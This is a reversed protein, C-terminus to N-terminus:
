RGGTLQGYAVNIRALQENGQAREPEPLRDPHYKKVLARYSADIVERPTSPLLYLTAHPTAPVPKPPPPPAVARGSTVYEHMIVHPFRGLFPDLVRDAYPVNITWLRKDPDYPCLFKTRARRSTHITLSM